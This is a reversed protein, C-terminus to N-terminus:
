SCSFCYIEKLVVTLQDDVGLKSQITIVSFDLYNHCSTDNM